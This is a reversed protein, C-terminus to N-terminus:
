VYTDRYFLFNFNYGSDQSTKSSFGANHVGNGHLDLYAKGQLDYIFPGETKSLANMVPTSLAQHLFYSADEAILQKTTDNLQQHYAARLESQNIDGQELSIPQQM